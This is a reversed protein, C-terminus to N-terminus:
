TPSWTDARAANAPKLWRPITMAAEILLFQGDNDAVSAVLAPWRLTLQQLLWVVFWEDDINEGWYVRGYLCSVSGTDDADAASPECPVLVFSDRQWIYDRTWQELYRVFLAAKAQLAAAGGGGAPGPQAGDSDTHLWYEVFDDSVGVGEPMSFQM